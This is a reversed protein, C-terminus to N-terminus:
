VRCAAELQRLEEFHRDLYHSLWASRTEPAIAEGSKLDGLCVRQHDAVESPDPQPDEASLGFLVHVFENETMGNDLRATYRATFGFRLDARVGLEEHLRREGAEIIHEGPRPHGCCSNAWKSKSHYKVSARRQLLTGGAPHFLFISFARHLAGRRHIELKPGTGVERDDEDVLIVTELEDIM